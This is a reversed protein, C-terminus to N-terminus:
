KEEQATGRARLWPAARLGRKRREGRGLPQRHGRPVALEMNSPGGENLSREDAVEDAQEDAQAVELALLIDGGHRGGPRQGSAAPRLRRYWTGRPLFYGRGTARGDLGNALVYPGAECAHMSCQRRPELSEGGFTLVAAGKNRGREGSKFRIGPRIPPRRRGGRSSGEAIDAGGRGRAGRRKHLNIRTASLVTAM